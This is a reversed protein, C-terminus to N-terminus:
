MRCLDGEQLVTFYSTFRFDEWRRDPKLVPGLKRPQNMVIRVNESEAIFRDDFVLQKQSGVPWPKTQAWASGVGINAIVWATFLFFPGRAKFGYSRSSENQMKVRGQSM